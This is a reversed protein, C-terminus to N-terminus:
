KTQCFVSYRRKKSDLPTMGPRSERSTNSLKQGLTPIVCRRTAAAHPKFRARCYQGVFYM